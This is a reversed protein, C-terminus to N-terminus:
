GEHCVATAGKLGRTLRRNVLEIVDERQGLDQAYSRPDMVHSHPGTVEPAPIWEASIESFAVGPLQLNRLAACEQAGRETSQAASPPAACCLSLIALGVTRNM